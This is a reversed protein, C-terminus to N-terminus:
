LHGSAPFLKLFSTRKRETVRNKACVTLHPVTEVVEMHLTTWYFMRRMASYMKPVWPHSAVVPFHELWLLLPRLSWSIVIQRSGDLPAIQELIGDEDVDIIGDKVRRMRLADCEDDVAQEHRIYERSIAQPVEETAMFESSPKM